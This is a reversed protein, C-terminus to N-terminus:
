VETDDPEVATDLGVYENITLTMEVTALGNQGLGPKPLQAPPEIKTFYAKDLAPYYEEYWVAKGAAKGTKYESILTEWEKVTENTLNVTVNFTGGTSGRGAIEKDVEDELASADITETDIGIDDTANIRHLQKFKAPKTGATTEVAYGVKVGVTSIGAVGSM